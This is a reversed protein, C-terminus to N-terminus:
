PQSEILIQSVQAGLFVLAVISIVMLLGVAVAIALCGIVWANGGPATQVIATGAFRDHLGQRTPSSGTTVLLVVYWALQALGIFGGVVPVVGLVGLWSGMALWRRFAQPMGLTRGDAANGVQLKLLRMGLTARGGSSWLFVFYVADLVATVLSAAFTVALLRGDLMLDPREGLQAARFFERWDFGGLVVAYLPITVIGTVFGLLIVDVLWAVFRPGVEAFRLGGQPQAEPPAWSM